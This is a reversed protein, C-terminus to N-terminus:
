RQNAGTTHSARRLHELVFAKNSRARAVEDHSEGRAAQLVLDGSYRMRHLGDFVAGFDTSGQGLAVTNGSKVRDKIHVSGIRLGYAAFEERPLYGLSASNGSDYNVKVFTNPVRELLASFASPNLSTELHLEVGTAEAYPLVQEMLEVICAVDEEDEIKSTDVFPLVVRIIGALQCRELLWLLTRTRDARERQNARVLPQEMFYDACVSVVDVASLHSLERLERIGDDSALPNVDAGHSDYIWEIADLGAQAALSFEERWRGRPFHQISGDGPPLLRGQMIGIRRM